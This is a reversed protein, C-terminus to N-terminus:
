AVRKLNHGRSALAEEIQNLREELEATEVLKGYSASAQTIAHIASLVAKLDDDEAAAYMAEEAARLARWQILLADEVTGPKRYRKLDIRAM